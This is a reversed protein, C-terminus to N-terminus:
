RSPPSPDHPGREAQECERHCRRHGGGRGCDARELSLPDPRQEARVAGEEQPYPDAALTGADGAPDVDGHAALEPDEKVMDLRAAPAQGELDRAMGAVQADFALECVVPADRAGDRLALNADADLQNAEM